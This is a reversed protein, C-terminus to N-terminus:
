CLPGLAKRRAEALDCPRNINVPLTDCAVRVAGAQAIWSRFSREGSALHDVLADALRTPWFGAAHQGDLIAPANPGLRRALDDPLPHLDVPVCLVNAFREERAHLLAAALGGLPGLGPHPVDPLAPLAAHDRGCVVIADVQGALADAARDLLSRGGITAAAKDSGFRRSRGGALIAGLIAAM